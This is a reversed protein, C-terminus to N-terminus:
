VVYLDVAVGMLASAEERIISISEQSMLATRLFRQKPSTIVTLRGGDFSIDHAQSLFTATSIRRRAVARSSSRPMRGVLLSPNRSRILIQPRSRSLSQITPHGHVRATARRAAVCAQAITGEDLRALLGCLRDQVKTVRGHCPECLTTLTGPDYEWPELGRLECLRVRRAVHSGAPLRQWRPDRLRKSYSARSRRKM